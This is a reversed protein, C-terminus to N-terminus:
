RPDTTLWSNCEAGLRDAERILGDAYSDAHAIHSRASVDAPVAAMADALWKEAQSTLLDDHDGTPVMAPLARDSPLALCVDLEAGLTRALRVGLALADAGGPTALYGVVLRM